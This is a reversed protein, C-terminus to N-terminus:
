KLMFLYLLVQRAVQTAVTENNRSSICLYIIMIELINWKVNLKNLVKQNNLGRTYEILCNELINVRYIKKVCECMWAFKKLNDIAGYFSKIVKREYMNMNSMHSSLIVNKHRISPSNVNKKYLTEGTHGHKKKRGSWFRQIRLLAMSFFLNLYFKHHKVFIHNHKLKSKKVNPTEDWRIKVFFFYLADVWSM